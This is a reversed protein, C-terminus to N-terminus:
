KNTLTFTITGFDRHAEYAEAVGRVLYLIGTTRDMNQSVNEGTDDNSAEVWTPMVPFSITFRGERVTEPRLIRLRLVHSYRSGKKAVERIGDLVAESPNDSTYFDKNLVTEEEQLAGSLDALLDVRLEGSHNPVFDRRDAEYAIEESPAFAAYEEVGGIIDRPPVRRNLEALLDRDGILWIYYPREAETLHEKNPGSYWWGEFNSRMKLLVVGLAPNARLADGFSNKISVQTNGFYSKASAKSVDLICDSVFLTVDREGKDRLMMRFIQRLDTNSRDGGAKAFSAPTLTRIFAEPKGSFPIVKTNIYNLSVSGSLRSLDSVYDFVADKLRSGPIMYGDMSGSNEVYVHLAISDALLEARPEKAPPEPTSLTLHSSGGCARLLIVVALAAVIAFPIILKKNM